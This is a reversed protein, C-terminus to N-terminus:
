TKEWPKVVEKSILLDVTKHMFVADQITGGYRWKMTGDHDLSAFLFGRTAGDMSLVEKKLQDLQDKM